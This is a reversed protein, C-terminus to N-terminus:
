PHALAYVEGKLTSFRRVFDEMMTKGESTYV